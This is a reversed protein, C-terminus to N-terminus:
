KNCVQKRYEQMAAIQKKIDDKTLHLSLGKARINKINQGIGKCIQATSSLAKKQMKCAEKAADVQMKIDAPSLHLSLGKARIASVQKGLTKCITLPSSLPAISVRESNLTFANAVTFTGLVLVSVAAVAATIYKKSITM